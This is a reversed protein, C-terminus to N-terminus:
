QKKSYTKAIFKEANVVFRDHTGKGIVGAEDFAVTEFSIKRGDVAIVTSEVIVEMGVPTASLHEINVRTGVTTNEDELQEAIAACSAKEMLAIMM